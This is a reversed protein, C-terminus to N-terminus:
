GHPKGGATYLTHMSQEESSNRSFLLVAPHAADVPWKGVGAMWQELTVGALEPNQSQLKPFIDAAVQEWTLLRKKITAAYAPDSTVAVPLAKDRRMSGHRHQGDPISNVTVGKM